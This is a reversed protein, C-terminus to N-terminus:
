PTDARRLADPPRYRGAVHWALDPAYAAPMGPATVLLPRVSSGRVAPVAHTVTRFRSRAAGTVPIGSEADRQAQEGAGQGAHRRDPQCYASHPGTGDGDRAGPAPEPALALLPSDRATRM